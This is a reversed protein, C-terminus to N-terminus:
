QECVSRLQVLSEHVQLHQANCIQLPGIKLSCLDFKRQQQCSGQTNFCSLCQWHTILNVELYLAGGNTANNAQFTSQQVIVNSGNSIM